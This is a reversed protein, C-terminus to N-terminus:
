KSVQALITRAIQDLPIITDIAHAAIAAAPM